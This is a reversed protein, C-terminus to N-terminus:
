RNKANDSVSDLQNSVDEGKDGYSILIKDLDNFVYNGFENNEKGNVYFKLSKEANNCYKVGTDVTFCDKEFKMGISEFFLWLPVGTAHMHLVDGTKEPAPAGKDLHIFSSTLKNDMKSMDMALPELFSNDLVKGNVYIKWDAHVHQSGLVGISSKSDMNCQIQGSDMCLQVDMGCVDCKGDNDKDMFQKALGVDFATLGMRISKQGVVKNGVNESLITESKPFFMSKATFLLVIIAFTLVLYIFGTVIKEKQKARKNKDIKIKPQIM